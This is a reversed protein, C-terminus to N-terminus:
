TKTSVSSQIRQPSGDAPMESQSQRTRAQLRTEIYQGIVVPFTKLFIRFDLWMSQNLTYRRDLRMMETFTTKNKGSVQWLGTLGPLSDVRHRQWPLYEKYEKPICPRPGILHMEGNFINYLQPLEDLSSARLFRGVAFIRPDGKQDLKQMPTDHKILNSFYNAHVQTDANVHMSRFKYCFFLKGKHGIRLQRFLAPGASNIKIAVIILLMLPSLLILGVGALFREAFRTGLAPQAALIENLFWESNDNEPELIPNPQKRDTEADGELHPPYTYIHCDSAPNMRIEAHQIKRLFAHAGDASTDALLVAISSDDLWGLTDSIRMQKTLSDILRKQVRKKPTNSLNFVVLSFVGDSRDSRNRERMLFFRFTKESCIGTNACEELCEKAFEARKEYDNKM